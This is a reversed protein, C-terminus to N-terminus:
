QIHSDSCLDQPKENNANTKLKNLLITKEQNYIEIMKDIDSIRREVWESGGLTSIHKEFLFKAKTFSPEYLHDGYSLMKASENCSHLITCRDKNLFRGVTEEKIPKVIHFRVADSTNHHDIILASIAHRPYVYERKRSRSHERLEAPTVGFAECVCDIAKELTYLTDGDVSPTPTLPFPQSFGLHDTVMTVM